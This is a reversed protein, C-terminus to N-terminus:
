VRPDDTRSDNSPHDAHSMQDVIKEPEAETAAGKVSSTGESDNGTVSPQDNKDVDRPATQTEEVTKTKPGENM